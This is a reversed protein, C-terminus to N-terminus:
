IEHSISQVLEIVKDVVDEVTIGTICRWQSHICQWDCGFCPLQRTVAITAANGPYPFFRKVYGGGLICIVPTDVAAAIHAGSTENGLYFFADALLAALERLTTRGALDTAPIDSDSLAAAVGSCLPAEDASGCIVWHFPYRGNIERVASIFHEAQWQREKVLAGPFLIAYPKRESRQYLSDARNRDSDTIWIETEHSLGGNYCLYRLMEYNRDIEFKSVKDAPILETYYYRRRGYIRDFADAQFAIRRPAGTWGVLCDLFSFYSSFAANIAMDFCAASMRNYWRLREVINLRFKRCPLRWVEDVYPCTEALNYVTDKVLLVLWADPFQFRYTKLNPSFLVFDGISDLKAILIRDLGTSPRSPKGAIRSLLFLLYNLTEEIRKFICSVM